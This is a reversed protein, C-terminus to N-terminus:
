WGISKSISAAEKDGIEMKKRNMASSFYDGTEGLFLPDGSPAFRWKFLLKEYSLGDIYKKNKKTLDM